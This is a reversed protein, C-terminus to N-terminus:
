KQAAMAFRDTTSPPQEMWANEILLNVGDEAYVGIEAILRSYEVAVDRRQTVSLGAGYYGTSASVLTVVHFLMLKDSFPPVTSNTIESQLKPPSPLNEVSLISSLSDYQNNCVNVGRQLYKRVETSQTVQSFGIELVIKMILKAMNFYISNMEIANLPRVKGFWGTLFAQKKVFDVRDPANINPPRSFVGKKLMVDVVMDYLKMTETNCQSFYSRQDARVSTGIAGGYGTLGIICMFHFYHLLLIDSFLPPAKLNVDEETFGVPIPYKDKNFFFKIKEIHSNALELAFELVSRVDKDQAKKLSHSTFCISMSDNLYQTWLNSIESSTLHVNHDNEM